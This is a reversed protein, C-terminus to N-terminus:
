HVISEASMPAAAAARGFLPQLTDNLLLGGPDRARRLQQFDDWRPYQELLYEPDIFANKGWHFRYGFPALSQHLQQRFNAAPRPHFANIWCVDRQYAPSLWHADQRSCRIRIGLFPYRSTSQFQERLTRMATTASELPVALEIDDIPIGCPQYHDFLRLVYPSSGERVPYSGGLKRMLLQRGIGTRQTHYMRKLGWNMLRRSYWRPVFDRVSELERNPVPQELRRSGLLEVQNLLPTYVMDLYDYSRQLDEFKNLVDDLPLVRKEARLWFAPVCQLTVTSILGLLGLSVVSAHFESDEPTLDDVTGDTRVIRLGCVLGAMTPQHLSGGHTGTSIAGSVTQQDIAGLSPLALGHESLHRNLERITMGAEVTVQQGDVRLLRNYRRMELCIEPARPIASSSHLSGVARIKRGRGRAQRMAECLEAESEPTLITQPQFSWNRERHTLKRTSAPILQRDQLWFRTRLMGAGLDTRPSFGLESRIRDTPFPVPHDPDAAVFLLLSLRRADATEPLSVLRNLLLGRRIIREILRRPLYTVRRGIMEGYYQFFRGCSVIEGGTNYIRSAAQQATGALLLARAVDETSIVDLLRERGGTMMPVGRRIMGLPILTWSDSAPGYVCTPRLISYEMGTTQCVERVALEARLKTRSYIDMGDHEELPLDERYVGDPSEQGLCVSVSSTHVFRRCGANAAAQALLKTAQVNTAEAQKL